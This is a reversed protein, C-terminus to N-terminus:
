VIRLGAALQWNPVCQGLPKGARRRVGALRRDPGGAIPSSNAPLFNSRNALAAMISVVNRDFIASLDRLVLEEVADM